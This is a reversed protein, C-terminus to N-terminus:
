ETINEPITVGWMKELDYLTRIEPKFLHVIVDGADLLVWEGQTMGEIGVPKIGMQHLEQRLLEAMSVLHRQSTGSAIIMYDAISTKGELDIKVRGIAKRDELFSEIHTRMEASTPLHAAQNM